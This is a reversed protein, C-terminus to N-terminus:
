GRPVSESPHAHTAFTLTLVNCAGVRRYSIDDAFERILPIGLGGIPVDALSSGQESSCHARPDFPQGDDAITMAVCNPSTELSIEVKTARHQSGHVLINAVVENLCVEGRECADAPVGNSNAWDCWWASMRRIEGADNSFRRQERSNV